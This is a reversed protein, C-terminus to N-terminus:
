INCSACEGCLTSRRASRTTSRHSKPSVSLPPPDIAADPCGRKIRATPNLIARDRELEFKLKRRERASMGEEVKLRRQVEIRRAEAKDSWRVQTGRLDKVNATEGFELLERFSVIGNEAGVKTKWRGGHDHGCSFTWKGKDLKTSNKKKKGIRICWHEDLRGKNHNYAAPNLGGTKAL